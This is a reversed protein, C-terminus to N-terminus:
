VALELGLETAAIAEMQDIYTRGKVMDIITTRWVGFEKALAATSEKPYRRRIATAQEMTFKRNGSGPPRCEAIPRKGLEVEAHRNNEAATVWELNDAYNNQKNGDMHNVMPRSPDRHCFATAVLRHVTVIKAHGIGIVPYGAKNLCLKLLKKPGRVRGFASVAYRGDIECEAWIEEEPLLSLVNGFADFIM